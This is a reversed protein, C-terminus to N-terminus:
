TKKRKLIIVFATSSIAIGIIAGIIIGKPFGGSKNPNEDSVLSSDVVNIEASTDMSDSVYSDSTNDEWSDGTTLDTSTDNKSGQALYENINLINDVDNENVFIANRVLETGPGPITAGGPYLAKQEEAYALHEKVKIAQEDAVKKFKEGIYIIESDVHREEGFINTVASVLVLAETEGDNIYFVSGLWEIYVYRVDAPSVFYGNGTLRQIRRAHDAYSISVLSNGGSIRVHKESINVYIRITEAYLGETNVTKAFYVNGTTRKINDLDSIDYSFEASRQKIEFVGTEVYDLLNATYFPMISEKVISVGDYNLIKMCEESSQIIEYIANQKDTAAYVSEGPFTIRDTTFGKISLMLMSVIILILSVITKKM